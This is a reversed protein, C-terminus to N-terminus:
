AVTLYDAREQRPDDGYQNDGPTGGRLALEVFLWLPGLVPIAAALLCWPSRARDHLRKVALAVGCWALPPYLLWTASRGFAADLFVFLVAFVAGAAVWWAWFTGRALRGEFSLLRNALQALIRTILPEEGM